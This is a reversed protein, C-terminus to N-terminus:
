TILGYLWSSTLRSNYAATVWRGVSQVVCDASNGPHYMFGDWGFTTDTAGSTLFRTCVLDTGNGGVVPLKGDKQESISSWRGLFRQTIVVPDGGNFRQEPKGESDLGVLLAGIGSQLSTGGVCRIRDDQLVLIDWFSFESGEREFYALGDVGFTKDLMGDASFRAIVSKQGTMGAVIIKGSRQIALGKMTIFAPTIVVGKAGFTPDVEGNALLRVLVAVDSVSATYRAAVIIKGDPLLSAKSGTKLSHWEPFFQYTKQGFVLDPSGSPNFRTLALNGTSYGIMLIKKDPQLVAQHLFSRAAQDFRGRVVGGVGFGTDLVGDESVRCLCFEGSTNDFTALTLSTGGELLSVSRGIGAPAQFKGGIAFSPDLEGSAAVGPTDSHMAMTERRSGSFLVDKRPCYRAYFENFEARQLFSQTWDLQNL